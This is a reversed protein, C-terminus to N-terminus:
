ATNSLPRRDRPRHRLLAARERQSALMVAEDILLQAAAHEGFADLRSVQLFLGTLWELRGGSIHPLTSILKRRENPDGLDLLRQGIPHLPTGALLEPHSFHGGLVVVKPANGRNGDNRNEDVVRCM